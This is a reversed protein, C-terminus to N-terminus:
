KTGGKWDEYYTSTMKPIPICCKKLEEIDISLYAMTTETSRHGLITSIVPMSVSKKLMNSALSHRLSHAGHKKNKWNEINAREFAKSIISHITPSTLQKGVTSRMHSVIITDDGPTKPRGNRYYDLIANGVSPYLTLELLEGTKYQNLIILERNWDIQSLRLRSIDSSRLGYVAALLLAVYDRKGIASSRDASNIMRQIEDESYVDIVQVPMPGRKPKAVYGAYNKPTYEQEFLHGFFCILMRRVDNCNGECYGLSNIFEDIIEVTLDDLNLEKNELFNFFLYLKHKKDTVTEEKNNRVESCYKLFSDVLPKIEPAFSYEKKETRFEFDGTELYSSLLRVYRLHRRLDKNAIGGPLVHCGYTEDLYRYCLEATFSEKEEESCWAKLKKWEVMSQEIYELSYNRDELCQRVQKLLDDLKTTKM